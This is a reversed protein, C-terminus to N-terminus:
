PEATSCMDDALLVDKGKVDGIVTVVDVQAPSVRQKDVIAIEANLLRAYAEHRAQYQRYGAGRRCIDNGYCTEKFAQPWCPAEQAVNDVPIDFFGQLQGAHLDMTLIRTAGANVLLNAVLKATIPM